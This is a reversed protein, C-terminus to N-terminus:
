PAEPLAPVRKTAEVLPLAIWPDIYPAQMGPLVHGVLYEVAQWDAGAQRLGSIFGRRFAHDPRGEWAPARVGARAWIRAMDRPRVMRHGHPCPILLGSSPWTCLRPSGLEAVFAEALPVIRGTKESRMKGLEGRVTLRAAALDLDEVRLAMAQSVRLGTCRLVVAVNRRWGTAATIVSDMESWTPAITPVMSARGPTELSRPPPVHDGYEDRNAAWKWLLEVVETHKRATTVTRAHGWRGSDTRTLVDWYDELLRLSLVNPGAKAGHEKEVWSVFGEAMQGYRVITRPALRRSCATLWREAIERLRPRPRADRPEWRRGLAASTEVELKLARATDLSPASRWREAGDPDRWRVGYKGNRKEISAM